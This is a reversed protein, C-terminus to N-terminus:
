SEDSVKLGAVFIAIAKTQEAGIRTVTKTVEDILQERDVDFSESPQAKISICALAVMGREDFLRDNWRSHPWGELIKWLADEAKRGGKSWLWPVVIGSVDKELSIPVEPPATITVGCAFGGDRASPVRVHTRWFCNSAVTARKTKNGLTAIGLSTFHDEIRKGCLELFDAVQNSAADGVTRAMELVREPDRLGTLDREEGEELEQYLRNMEAMYKLYFVLPNGLHTM